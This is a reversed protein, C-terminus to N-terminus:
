EVYRLKCVVTGLLKKNRSNFNDTRKDNKARYYLRCTQRNADVDVNAEKALQEFTDRAIQKFKDRFVTAYEELPDYIDPRVAM